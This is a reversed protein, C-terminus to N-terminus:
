FGTRWDDEPINPRLLQPPKCLVMHKKDMIESIRDLTTRLLLNMRERKLQIGYAM